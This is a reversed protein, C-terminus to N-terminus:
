AAHCEILLNETGLCTYTKEIEIIAWSDDHFGYVKNSTTIVIHETCGGGLGCQILATRMDKVTFTLPTYRPIAWIFVITVFVLMVGILIPLSFRGM